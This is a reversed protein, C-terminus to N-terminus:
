RALEERASQLASWRAAGGNRDWLDFAKIFAEFKELRRDRPPEWVPCHMNPIQITQDASGNISRTRPMAM